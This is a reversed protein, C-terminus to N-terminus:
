PIPYYVLMYTIKTKTENKIVYNHKQDVKSVPKRSKTSRLIKGQITKFLEKSKGNTDGLNKNQQKEDKVGSM